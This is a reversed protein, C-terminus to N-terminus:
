IKKATRLSIVNTDLILMLSLDILIKCLDPLEAVQRTLCVGSLQMVVPSLKESSKPMSVSPRLLFATAMPGLRLASIIVMFFLSWRAM